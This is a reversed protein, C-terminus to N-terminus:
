KSRVAADVDFRDHLFFEFHFVARMGANDQSVVTAPVASSRHWKCSNPFGPWVDSPLTTRIRASVKFGLLHGVHSVDCAPHSARVPNQLHEASRGPALDATYTAQFGAGTKFFLDPVSIRLSAPRCGVAFQRKLPSTGTQRFAGNGGVIEPVM